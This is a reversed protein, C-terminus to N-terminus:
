EAKLWKHLTCASQPSRTKAPMYCGCQKCVNIDSLEICEEVCIRMREKAIIEIEPNPFVLNKWGNYIEELKSM